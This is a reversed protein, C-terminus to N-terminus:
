VRPGRLVLHVASFCAFLPPFFSSPPHPRPRAPLPSTARHLPPHWHHELPLLPTRKVHVFLLVGWSPAGQRTQEREAATCLARSLCSVPGLAEAPWAPLCVSPLSSAAPPTIYVRAAQRELSFTVGTLGQRVPCSLYYRAKIGPLLEQWDFHFTDHNRPAACTHKQASTRAHTRAHALM